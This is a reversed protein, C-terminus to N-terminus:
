EKQEHYRRRERPEAKRASILRIKTERMTFTVTILRGHVMGTINFREEGYDERDDAWEYAFFDDFVECAVEFSLGHNRLNLSAKAEDWEYDDVSM